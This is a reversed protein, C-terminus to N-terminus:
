PIEKLAGNMLDFVVYGTPHASEHHHAIGLRHIFQLTEINM